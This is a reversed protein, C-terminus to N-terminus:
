PRPSANFVPKSFIRWKEDYFVGSLLTPQERHLSNIEINRVEFGHKVKLYNGDEYYIKVKITDYYSRIIIPQAPNSSDKKAQSLVSFSILLLITTTILRM